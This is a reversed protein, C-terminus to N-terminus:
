IRTIRIDRKRDQLQLLIRKLQEDTLPIPLRKEQALQILQIELQAAFEPRVIRLNHLRSRAENSLITRLIAEKQAEAEQQAREVQEEEAVRRRMESLKRQKIAEIDDPPVSM